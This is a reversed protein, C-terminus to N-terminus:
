ILATERSDSLACSVVCIRLEILELHAWTQMGEYVWQERTQKGRCVASDITNKKQSLRAVRQKERSIFSVM